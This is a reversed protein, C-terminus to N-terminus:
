YWMITLESPIKQNLSVMKRFKNKCKGLVIEPTSKDSSSVIWKTTDISVSYECEKYIAVATIVNISKNYKVDRLKIM